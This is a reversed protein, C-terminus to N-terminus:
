TTEAASILVMQFHACLEMFFIKEATEATLKADEEEPCGLEHWYGVRIENFVQLLWAVQVPRIKMHWGDEQEAFRGPERLFNGIQRRNEKRTEALAEDLMNQEEELESEDVTRSISNFRSNAVPYKGLLRELIEKQRGSLEFLLYHETVNLLTM